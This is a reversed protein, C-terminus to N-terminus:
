DVSINGKTHPEGQAVLMRIIERIRSLVEDSLHLFKVGVGDDEVRVVEAWADFEFVDESTFPLSFQFAFRGGIERSGKFGSIFMGDESWDHVRYVVDDIIATADAGDVREITRHRRFVYDWLRGLVKRVGEYCRNGDAQRTRGAFMFGAPRFALAAAFCYVPLDSIFTLASEDNQRM